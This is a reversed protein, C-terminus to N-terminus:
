LQRNEPADLLDRLRELVHRLASDFGKLKGRPQDGFLEQALKNRGDLMARSATKGQETMTVLAVRRDAPDAERTVFGTSELGDVLATVTRPTVQLREALDRQTAPGHEEVLLL